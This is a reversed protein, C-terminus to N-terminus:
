TRINHGYGLKDAEPRTRNVECTFEINRRGSNRIPFGSIGNRNSIPARDKIGGTPPANAADRCVNQNADMIAGGSNGCTAEALAVRCHLICRRLSLCILRFLSTVEGTMLSMAPCVEPGTFLNLIVDPREALFPRM